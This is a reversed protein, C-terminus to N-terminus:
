IFIYFDSFLVGLELSGFAIDFIIIGEELNEIEIGAQIDAFNVRRIEIVFLCVFQHTLFKASIMRLRTPKNLFDDVVM